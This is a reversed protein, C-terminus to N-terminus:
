LAAGDVICRIKSYGSFKHVVTNHSDVQGVTETINCIYKLM